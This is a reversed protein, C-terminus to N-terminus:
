KGKGKRGRLRRNNRVWNVLGGKGILDRMFEPVPKIRYEEGRSVNRIEGKIMDIEILDGKKAKGAAAACEFIPLGINISNRYFIRAFSPAIVGAAGAARIAVPAHERSSGCGFNKGAVILDGRRAKKAFDRDIGELCHAGLEKPDSTNLYKAPIIEDTNVNDGYKWVRGKVKLIVV